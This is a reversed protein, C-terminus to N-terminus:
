LLFRSLLIDLNLANLTVASVVDYVVLPYTFGGLGANVGDGVGGWMRMRAGARRMVGRLGIRVM